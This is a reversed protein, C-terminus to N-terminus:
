KVFQKIIKEPDAKTYKSPASSRTVWDSSNKLSSLSLSLSTVQKGATLLMVMEKPFQKGEFLAFDNYAFNFKYTNDTNNTILTQNLQGTKKVTAFKYSLMKDKYSIDVNNVSENISFDSATVITKGPEFVENWFLSQLTYFDINAKKLFSVDSYPVDIYQKNIRDIILVHTKTFEMRGLEIAGLLPDVLSIQIVDNKKMKLSGSTSVSKGDVNVMVKIKATLNDQQYNNSKVTALYKEASFATEVPTTAPTTKMVEKSSGCSVLVVCMLCLGVYRIDMLKIKDKM